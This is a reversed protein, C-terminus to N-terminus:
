ENEDGYKKHKLFVSNALIENDFNMYPMISDANEWGFLCRIDIDSKAKEPHQANYELVEMVRTSRGSHTRIKSADVGARSACKILVKRYNHYTLPEGTSSGRLNLFIFDSIIGSTNEAVVREEYIYQNLTESAIESIRVTRLKNDFGAVATPKMKSRTPKILREASKYGSLCMSLVEDIRFGELTLLFVAKDRLINFNNSLAAREEDSYWKIYEKRGKVDPLMMDILYDYKKNYIQGYLYSQTNCKREGEYFTMESGYVQDLYRYFETIVSKYGSLTSYSLSETPNIIKLDDTNGYVLYKLFKVLHHNSAMDYTTKHRDHLYNLFVCLKTAANKGTGLKNISKMEIYQNPVIMPILNDTLMFRCVVDGMKTEFLFKKVKFRKEM